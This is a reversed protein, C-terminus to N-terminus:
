GGEINNYGVIALGVVAKGVIANTDNIVKADLVYMYKSLEEIAADIGGVSYENGGLFVYRNGDPLSEVHKVLENVAISLKTSDIAYNTNNFHVMAGEGSMDDSLYKAIENRMFELDAQEVFYMEDNFKIQVQAM